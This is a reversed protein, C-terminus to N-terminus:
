LKLIKIKKTKSKEPLTVKNEWKCLQCQVQPKLRTQIWSEFEEPDCGLDQKAINAFQEEIQFKKSLQPLIAQQHCRYFRGDMLYMCQIAPCKSHQDDADRLKDWSLKNGTKLVSPNEFFQWAETIEGREVGDVVLRYHWEGDEHRGDWFRECIANDWRQDIWAMVNKLDEQSHASIEIKWDKEQWEPYLEDFKDLDRGNTVVWKKSSPWMHEVWTMWGGLEPNSTPEGGIIFVEDFNVINKLRELRDRHRDIKFHNGWNLHNFTCCSDCSLTCTHSIYVSLEPLHIM